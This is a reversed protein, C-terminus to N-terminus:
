YGAAGGMVNKTEMIEVRATTGDPSQGVVNIQWLTVLQKPKNAQLNGGAAVGSDQVWRIPDPFAPDGYYRPLAPEHDYLATDGLNFATGGALDPFPPKFNKDQPASRVASRAHAAAAEAAYFATESRNYFGASIREGSTAELAAIGIAGMMALLVVAVLLVAGSERKRIPAGSITVDNPRNCM